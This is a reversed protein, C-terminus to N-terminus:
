NHDLFHEGLGQPATFNGKFDLWFCQSIILRYSLAGGIPM